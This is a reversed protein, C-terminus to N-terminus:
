SYTIYLYPGKGQYSPEKELLAKVTNGVKANPCQAAALYAKIRVEADQQIDQLITLASTRLKDKCPDALYTELAVSRIRNPATKDQAVSVVKQLVQDSLHGFNKLAKLAFVIDNEKAKNNAKGDGVKQLM